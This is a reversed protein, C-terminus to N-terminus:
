ALNPPSMCAPLLARLWVATSKYFSYSFPM